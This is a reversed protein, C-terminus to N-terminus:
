GSIEMCIKRIGLECCRPPANGSTLAGDEPFDVDRATLRLTAEDGDRTYFTILQGWVQMEKTHCSAIITNLMEVDTQKGQLVRLNKGVLERPSFGILEEVADQASVVKYPHDMLVVMTASSSKPSASGSSNCASDGFSFSGDGIEVPDGPCGGPLEEQVMGQLLDWTPACVDGPRTAPYTCVNNARQNEFLSAM